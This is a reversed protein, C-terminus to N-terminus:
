IPLYNGGVHTFNHVFTSPTKSLVVHSNQVVHECFMLGNQPGISRCNARNMISTAFSAITLKAFFVKIHPTHGLALIM